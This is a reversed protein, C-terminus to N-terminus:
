GDPCNRVWGSVGLRQAQEQTWARFFVGQVRGTVEVHRAVKAM